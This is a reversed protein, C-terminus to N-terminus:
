QFIRATPLSEQEVITVIRNETWPRGCQLYLGLSRSTDCGVYDDLHCGLDADVWMAFYTSDIDEIARNILRYRYFTADNLQDSTEFAFAQLQVEMQIADGNTETHIGGADNYICFQMLDPFTKPENGDKPCGRVEVIPFDGFQPEYIGVIGGVDWFGALGNFGKNDSPLRFGHIDFFFENGLAPWGKIAEPIESPDLEDRGEALAQQWNQRHQEVDDGTVTFFADWNVCTDPGVQGEDTLPGPWFDSNGSFHGYTQCAVKLNGGPDFGGLWVAGAFIAAVETLGSGEPIKPVIYRGNGGNWWLDGGTTLRARVNNVDLDIQREAIDCDMRYSAQQAQSQSPKAKKGGVPVHASATGLGLLWVMMVLCYKSFRMINIKQNYM